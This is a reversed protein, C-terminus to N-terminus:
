WELRPQELREFVRGPPVPAPRGDATVVFHRAETMRVRLAVLDATSIRHHRRIRLLREVTRYGIGPVRLLQERPATNVDVPFVEPHRLAWALKPSMHAPLNPESATTLEAADFQYHRILWDAQYLRHERTRGDGAHAELWGPAHPFPSFATYYVRRL